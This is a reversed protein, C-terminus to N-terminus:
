CLVNNKNLFADNVTFQSRKALSDSLLVRM